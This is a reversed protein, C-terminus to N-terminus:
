IPVLIKEKMNKNVTSKIGHQLSLKKVVNKKIKEFSVLTKDKIGDYAPLTTKQLPDCSEKANKIRIKKLNVAFRPYIINYRIYRIVVVFEHLM